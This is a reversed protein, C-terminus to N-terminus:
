NTQKAKGDHIAAVFGRNVSPAKFFLSFNLFFARHLPLFGLIFQNM